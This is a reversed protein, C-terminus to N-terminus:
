EPDEDLYPQLADELNVEPALGLKRRLRWRSQKVSEPKIGLIRAVQKIDLNLAAFAALKHDMPSLDPYAEKLRRTFNPNISAFTYLFSDTDCAAIHMSMIKLQLTERELQSELRRLNHRNRERIWITVTILLVILLALSIVIWIMKRRQHRLEDKARIDSVLRSTALTHIQERENEDNMRQMVEMSQRLASLAGAYDGRRELLKSHNHLIFVSDEMYSRDLNGLARMSFAYASDEEGRHLLLQSYEAMARGRLRRNIPLDSGIIMPLAQMLATTDNDWFYINLLILPFATYNSRFLSDAALSRLIKVADADRGTHRLCSAINIMNGQAQKTLGVSVFMESATEFATLAQKPDGYKKLLLGLDGYQMALLATDGIGAYFDINQMTRQYADAGRHEDKADHLWFDIRRVEYPHGASDILTRAQEFEMDAEARRGSKFLCVGHFFHARSMLRANNSDARAITMARAAIGSLTDVPAARWTAYDFTITLSDIEPSVTKWRFPSLRGNDERCCILLLLLITTVFVNPLHKM